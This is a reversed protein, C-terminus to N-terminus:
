AMCSHGTQATQDGIRLCAGKDICWFFFSLFRSFVLFKLIFALENPLKFSNIMWGDM